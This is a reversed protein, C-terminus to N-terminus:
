RIKIRSSCHLVRTRRGFRRVRAPPSSVPLRVM